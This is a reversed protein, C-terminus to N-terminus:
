ALSYTSWRREGRKSLIGQDVLGVLDRQITKESVGQIIRSIDKISVERKERVIDLIKAKRDGQVETKKTTVVAPMSQRQMNPIKTSYPTSHQIKSVPAVVSEPTAFLDRPFNATTNQATKQLVEILANCESKVINGNMPSIIKGTVAVTLFGAIETAIMQAYTYAHVDGYFVRVVTCLLEDGKSRLRVRMPDTDSLFDTILYLASVVKETKAKIFKESYTNSNPQM